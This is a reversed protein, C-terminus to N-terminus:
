LHLGKLLKLQLIKVISDTRVVPQLKTKFSNRKLIESIIALEPRVLSSSLNGQFEFKSFSAFWFLIKSKAFKRSWNMISTLLTMDNKLKCYLICKLVKLGKLNVHHSIGHCFAWVHNLYGFKSNLIPNVFYLDRSIM